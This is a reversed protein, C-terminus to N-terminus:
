GGLRFLGSGHAKIFLDYEGAAIEFPAAELLMAVLLVASALGTAHFKDHVRLARIDFACGAPLDLCFESASGLLLLPDLAPLVLAVSARGDCFRNVIDSNQILLDVRQLQFSL